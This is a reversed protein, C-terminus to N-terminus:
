KVDKFPYRSLKKFTVYEFCFLQLEEEDFNRQEEVQRM